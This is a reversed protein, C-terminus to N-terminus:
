QVARHGEEKVTEAAIHQLKRFERSIVEGEKQIASTTKSLKYNLNKLKRYAYTVGLYGAVFLVVGIILASLWYQGNLAEGLALIAFILLPIASIVFLFGFIAIKTTQGKIDRGLIKLEQNLLQINNQILSKATRSIEALIKFYPKEQQPYNPFNNM